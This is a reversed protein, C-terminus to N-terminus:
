RSQLGRQSSVLLLAQAAPGSCCLRSGHWPWYSGAGGRRVPLSPLGYGTLPPSQLTVAPVRTVISASQQPTFKSSLRTEKSYKGLVSIRGVAQVKRPSNRASSLVQVESAVSLEHGMWWAMSGDGGYVVQVWRGREGIKCTRSWTAHM